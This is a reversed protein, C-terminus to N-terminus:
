CIEYEDEEQVDDYIVKPMAVTYYAEDYDIWDSSDGKGFTVGYRLEGYRM